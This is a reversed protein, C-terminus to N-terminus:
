GSMVKEYREGVDKWNVVKWFNSLYEPKRNQYEAVDLCWQSQVDTNPCPAEAHVQCVATGQMCAIM